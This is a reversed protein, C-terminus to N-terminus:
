GVRGTVDEIVLEITEESLSHESEPLHDADADVADHGAVFILVVVVRKAESTRPQAYNHVPPKRARHPHATM